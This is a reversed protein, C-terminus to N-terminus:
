DKIFLKFLIYIIIRTDTLINDRDCIKFIGIDYTRVLVQQFKEHKRFSLKRCAKDKWKANQQFKHM